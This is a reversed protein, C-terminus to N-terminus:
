VNDEYGDMMAVNYKRTPSDDSKVEVWPVMSMQGYEMFVTISKVGFKGVETVGDEAWFIRNLKDGEQLARM